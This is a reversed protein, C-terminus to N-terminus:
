KWEKTEEYYREPRRKIHSYACAVADRLNFQYANCFANLQNFFTNVIISSATEYDGNLAYHYINNYTFSLDMAGVKCNIHQMIDYDLGHDNMEVFLTSAAVYMDGIADMVEYFYDEHHLVDYLENLEEAIKTVQEQPEVYNLHKDYVWNTINDNLQRSVKSEIQKNENLKNM